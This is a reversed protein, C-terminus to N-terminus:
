TSMQVNRLLRHDQRTHLQLTRPDNELIEVKSRAREQLQDMKSCSRVRAADDGRISDQQRAGSQVGLESEDPERVSTRDDRRELRVLVKQLAIFFYFSLILFM